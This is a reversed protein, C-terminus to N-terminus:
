VSFDAESESERGVRRIEMREEITEEDLVCEVILVKKGSRRAADLMQQRTRKRYFTADAIVSKGGRLLIEAEHVMREYVRYKEQESYTREELMKKRIIDSSVHEGDLKAALAQALTSKGTGPLGCVIILM